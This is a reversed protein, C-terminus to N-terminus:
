VCEAATGFKRSLERRLDADRLNRNIYNGCNKPCDKLHACYEDGTLCLCLHWDLNKTEDYWICSKKYGM